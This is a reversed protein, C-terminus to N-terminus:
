KRVKGYYTHEHTEWCDDCCECDSAGFSYPRPENCAPCIFTHDDCCDALTAPNDCYACQITTTIM